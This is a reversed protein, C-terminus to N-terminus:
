NMIFIYFICYISVINLMTVCMSNTVINATSSPGKFETDEGIFMTDSPNWDPSKKVLDVITSRNPITNNKIHFTVNVRNEGPNGFDITVVDIYGGGGLITTAFEANLFNAINQLAKQYITSSGNNSSVLVTTTLQIAYNTASLLRRRGNDPILDPCNEVSYELLSIDNINSTPIMNRLTTKMGSDLTLALNGQLNQECINMANLDRVITKIELVNCRWFPANVYIGCLQTITDFEPIELDLVMSNSTQEKTPSLAYTDTSSQLLNRRFKKSYFLDSTSLTFPTHTLLKGHEKAFADFANIRHNIYQTSLLRRAVPAGGSSYITIMGIAIIKSCVTYSTASPFQSQIADLAWNIVPNVSYARRYRNNLKLQTVLQDHFLRGTQKTYATEGGKFMVDAIFKQMNAVSSNDNVFIESVIGVPKNLVNNKITSDL